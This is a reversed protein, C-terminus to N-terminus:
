VWNDIPPYGRGLKASFEVCLIKMHYRPFHDVIHENTMFITKQAM